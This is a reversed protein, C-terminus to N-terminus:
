GNQEDRSRDAALGFVLRDQDAVVSLIEVGPEDLRRPAHTM